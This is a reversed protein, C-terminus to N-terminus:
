PVFEISVADTRVGGCGLRLEHPGIDGTVRVNVQGDAGVYTVQQREGDVYAKVNHVDANKPLRQVWASLFGNALAVRGKAWDVADCVSDIRLVDVELPVDVAIDIANSQGLRVPHWGPPLGPPLMFNVQWFGADVQGSYGPLVGYEGVTPQSPPEGDVVCSVYEDRDARFNIGFNEAHVAALLNAGCREVEDWKRFCTVAAGYDQVNSVQVRAFGATRCLAALASVTPGFWNDFQGGLEDYEFFELLKRDGPEHLVFSEIVAMDRCVACVRELALLPHKVHYLVGLFLVIDFTGITEPRLDYVDLERYDVKSGLLRHIEYFRPNEWRDIAVVEAGRREMEFSFWGDWAGIDLVRKGRLDQPIAYQALRRRQAALDSAGEIISGDPLEFSHWWGKSLRQDRWQRVYSYPDM